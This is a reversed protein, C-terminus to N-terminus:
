QVMITINTNYLKSDKEVFLGVTHKGIATSSFNYASGNQGTDIGDLHWQKVVYGASQATITLTAGAAIIVTNGGTTTALNGHENVWYYEIKNAPVTQLVTVACSATKGGDATTVYITASGLAVATVRGNSVSAITSNSSSWTVTKNTANSPTITATLTETAGTALSTTTKNLSVGTVLVTSSGPASVPVSISDILQIADNVGSFFSAAGWLFQIPDLTAAGTVMNVIGFSIQTTAVVAKVITNVTPNKFVKNILKTFISRANNIAKQANNGYISTYICMAIYMNRMRMNQSPTLGPDDKYQTFIDKSLTINSLLETDNGQGVTLEFTQTIPDYSTFYGNNTGESDTLVMSTPFNDNDFFFIINNDEFTFGVRDAGSETDNSYFKVYAKDDAVLVTRGSDMETFNGNSDVYFYLPTINKPDNRVPTTNSALPTYCANFALPLLVILATFSQKNRMLFRLKDKM